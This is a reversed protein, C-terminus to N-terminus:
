SYANFHARLRNSTGPVGPAAVCCIVRVPSQACAVTQAFDPFGIQDGSEHAIPRRSDAPGVVRCSPRDAPRPSRVPKTLWRFFENDFADRPPSVAPSRGLLQWRSGNQLRLVAVGTEVTANGAGEPCAPWGPGRASFRSRASLLRPSFGDGLATQGM